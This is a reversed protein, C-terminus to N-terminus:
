STSHWAQKKIRQRKIKRTYHSHQNHVLQLFLEVLQVAHQQRCKNHTSYSWEPTSIHLYLISKMWKEKFTMFFHWGFISKEHFYHIKRLVVNYPWCSGSVKFKFHKTCINLSISSLNKQFELSIFFYTQSCIKWHPKMIHVIIPGTVFYILFYIQLWGTFNFTQFSRYGYCMDMHIQHLM